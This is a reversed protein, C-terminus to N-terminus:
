CRKYYCWAKGTADEAGRIDRDGFYDGRTAEYIGRMEDCLEASM